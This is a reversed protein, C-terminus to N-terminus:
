RALDDHHLLHAEAVGAEPQAREDGLCRAPTRGGHDDDMRQGPGVAHRHLGAVAIEPAAEEGILDRHDAHRAYVARREHVRDTRPLGPGLEEDHALQLVHLARVDAAHQSAGSPRLLREDDEGVAIVPDMRARVVVAAAEPRHDLDRRGNGVHLWQPRDLEEARRGLLPRRRAHLGVDLCPLRLPREAIQAGGDVEVHEADAAPQLEDLEAEPGVRVRDRM